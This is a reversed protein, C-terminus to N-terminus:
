GLGGALTWATLAAFGILAAYLLADRPVKSTPPYSDLRVHYRGVKVVSVVPKEKFRM